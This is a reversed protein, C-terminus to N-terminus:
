TDSGLHSALCDPKLIQARLWSPGAPSSQEREESNIHHGRYGRAKGSAGARLATLKREKTKVTFSM